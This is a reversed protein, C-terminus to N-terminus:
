RVVATPRSTWEKGDFYLLGNKLANKYEENLESRIKEERVAASHKQRFLTNYQVDLCELKPNLIFQTLSCSATISLNGNELIGITGIGELDFELIDVDTRPLLLYYKESGPAIEECKYEGSQPSGGTISRPDFVILCAKRYENNVGGIILEKISDKDLDKFVFDGLRGGNLYEGLMKGDCDLITLQTPWNPLNGAEAIVELKGDDNIDYVDFGNIVYDKSHMTTGCKLSMGPKFRWLIKGKDNFCVLDHQGTDQMSIVAFLVENKRDGNVDKIILSPIRRSLSTSSTGLRKNQFGGRYFSEDELNQMGSDWRWLEKGKENLVILFSNQIKFDVPQTPGRVVSMLVFLLVVAVPAAVILIFRVKKISKRSSLGNIETKHNDRLILWRDLEEKYAFVSSKAEQNIRHIPLGHSKEWRRCTRIDCGLYASIEKGSRLLGEKKQNVVM